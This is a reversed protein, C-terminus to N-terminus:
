EVRTISAAKKVAVASLGIFALWQAVRTWPSAYVAQMTENM